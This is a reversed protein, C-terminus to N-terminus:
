REREVESELECLRPEGELEVVGVVNEPDVTGVVAEGEDNMPDTDASSMCACALAM